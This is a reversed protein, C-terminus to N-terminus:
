RKARVRRINRVLTLSTTEREGSKERARILYALVDAKRFRVLAGRKGDPGFKLSPLLGDRRLSDVKATSVNLLTAAQRRTLTDPMSESNEPNSRSLIDVIQQNQEIIRENQQILEQNQLWNNVSFM